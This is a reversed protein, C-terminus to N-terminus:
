TSSPHPERGGPTTIPLCESVSESAAPTTCALTDRRFPLLPLVDAAPELPLPVAVHDRGQESAVPEAVLRGRWWWVCRLLRGGLRSESATGRMGHQVKKRRPAHISSEDVQRAWASGRKGETEDSKEARERETAERMGYACMEERWCAAFAGAWVEWPHHADALKAYVKLGRYGTRAPQPSGFVAIAAQRHHSTM